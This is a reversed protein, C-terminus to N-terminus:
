KTIWKFIKCMNELGLINLMMAKICDNCSNYKRVSLQQGKLLIEGTQKYTHLQATLMALYLRHWRKDNTDINLAKVINIQAELLPKINKKTSTNVIGQENWYYLYMGKNTTAINPHKLLLEKAIIIDEYIKGDCFRTNEWFSKRYIKNWVWMHEFGYESLWELCDTYTHERPAFIHETQTGPREFVPFELIDISKDTEMRNVLVPITNEELADDSDVFMLYEGTAYQLAYNRTNALGGNEKHFAKIRNDGAAYEDAIEGSKDPSGDDILLLEFDDFQQRLISDICRRMLKEVKYLPVIISLKM